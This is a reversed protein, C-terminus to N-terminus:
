MRPYCAKFGGTLAESLLDQNKSTDFLEGTGWLTGVGQDFVHHLCSKQCDWTHHRLWEKLATHEASDTISILKELVRPNFSDLYEQKTKGHQQATPATCQPITPPPTPPPTPHPM